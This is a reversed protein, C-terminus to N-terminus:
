KRDSFDFLTGTSNTTQKVRRKQWSDRTKMLQKIEPTIFPNPRSKLKIRKVPAHESLTDLFLKNFVDVQDNFDDFINAIHFPVYELDSLFSEPNYTKYSRTLIYSPRPKPAKLKLTVAVLCHDAVASINVDCSVIFSENTTLAVDILTKSTDTTRTPKTVLQSLNFSNCLDMLARGELCSSGPLVDANLDGTILVDMGLLLSDM